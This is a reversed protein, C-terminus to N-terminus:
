GESKARANLVELNVLNVIAARRKRLSEIKASDHEPYKALEKGEETVNNAYEVSYRQGLERNIPEMVTTLLNAVATVPDTAVASM